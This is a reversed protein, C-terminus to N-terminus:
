ARGMGTIEAIKDIDRIRDRVYLRYIVRREPTLKDMLHEDNQKLAVQNIIENFAEDEKGYFDEGNIEEGGTIEKDFRSNVIHNNISDKLAKVEKVTMERKLMSNATKDDIMGIERAFKKDQKALFFHFTGMFKFNEDTAIDVDFYDIARRFSEYAQSQYDEEHGRFHKAHKHIMPMYQNLLRMEYNKYGMKIRRILELDTM